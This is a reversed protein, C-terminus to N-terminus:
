VIMYKIGKKTRVMNVTSNTRARFLDFAMCTQLQCYQYIHIYVCLLCVTNELVCIGWNMHVFYLGYTAKVPTWKSHKSYIFLYTFLYIFLISLLNYLSNLLFQKWQMVEHNWSSIFRWRAWLLLLVSSMVRIRITMTITKMAQWGQSGMRRM